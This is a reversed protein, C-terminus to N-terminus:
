AYPAYEDFGMLGLLLPCVIVGVVLGLLLDNDVVFLHAFSGTFNSGLALVTIILLEFGRRRYVLLSFLLQFMLMWGSVKPLGFTNLALMTICGGIFLAVPIQVWPTKGYAEIINM